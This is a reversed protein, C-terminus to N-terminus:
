VPNKMIKKIKGEAKFGGEWLKFPDGIKLKPLVLEPYLFVIPVDNVSDGPEIKGFNDLLLRCDNFEGNHEFPYGFFKIEPPINTKRGGEKTPYFKIDAIIDPRM